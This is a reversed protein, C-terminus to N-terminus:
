GGAGTAAVFGIAVAALCLVVSGAVNLVALRNGGDLALYLTQVSFSSVTTYGGCFGTLLLHTFWEEALVGGVSRALGALLGILLCGSVNVVLTGWPFTEGFRNAVVGSLFFRTVGGGFGGAMVLASATLPSM